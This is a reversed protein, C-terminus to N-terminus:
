SEAVLSSHMVERQLTLRQQPCRTYLTQCYAGQTQMRLISAITLADCIVIIQENRALPM